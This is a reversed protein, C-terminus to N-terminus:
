LLRSIVTRDCTGPRRSQVASRATKLRTLGMWIRGPDDAQTVNGRILLTLHVRTMWASGPGDLDTRITRASRRCFAFAGDSRRDM